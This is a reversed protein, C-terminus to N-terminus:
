HDITADQRLTAALDDVCSQFGADGPALGSGACARQEQAYTADGSGFSTGTCAALSLVTATLLMLRFMM